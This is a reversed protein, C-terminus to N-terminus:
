EINCIFLLNNNNTHNIKYKNLFILFISYPIITGKSRGLEDKLLKVDQVQAFTNVFDRIDAENAKWSINIV